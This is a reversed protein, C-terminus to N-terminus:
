KSKKARDRAEDVLSTYRKEMQAQDEPLLKGRLKELDDTISLFEKMYVMVRDFRKDDKSNSLGEPQGAIEENLADMQLRVSLYTNLYPSQTVYEIFSAARKQIADGTKLKSIDEKSLKM